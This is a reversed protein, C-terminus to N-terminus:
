LWPPDIYLFERTEVLPRPSPGGRESVIQSPCERLRVTRSKFVTQCKRQSWEWNPAPPSLEGPVMSAVVRKARAGEQAVMDPRPATPSSTGFSSPGGCRDSLTRIAERSWCAPSEETVRGAQEHPRQCTRPWSSACGPLVCRKSSLSAAGPGGPDWQPKRQAMVGIWTEQSTRELAQCCPREGM